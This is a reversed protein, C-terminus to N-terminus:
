TMVLHVHCCDCVCYQVQWHLWVCLLYTSKLMCVCCCHVQWHLCVCSLYTSKLMCDCVFCHVQWHLCVCSLYTSMLMCDCVCCHVQWRLATMCMVPIYEDIYQWLCSMTGTLDCGCFHVQWHLTISVCCMSEASVTNIPANYIYMIIVNMMMYDCCMIIYKKFLLWQLIGTGTYGCVSCHVQWHLQFCRKEETLM